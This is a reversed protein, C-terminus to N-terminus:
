KEDETTKSELKKGILNLIQESFHLLEQYIIEKIDPSAKLLEEEVGKIFNSRILSSLISM